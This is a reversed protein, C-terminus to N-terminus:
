KEIANEREEIMEKIRQLEIMMNNFYHEDVTVDESMEKVQKLTQNLEQVLEKEKEREYIQTLVMAIYNTYPVSYKVGQSKYYDQVYAPIRINIRKLGMEKM